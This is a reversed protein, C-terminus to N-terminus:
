AVVIGKRELYQLYHRAALYLNKAQSYQESRINDLLQIKLKEIYKYKISTRKCVDLDTLVLTRTNGRDPYSVKDPISKPKPATLETGLVDLIPSKAM